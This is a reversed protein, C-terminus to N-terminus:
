RLKSLFMEFDLDLLDAEDDCMEGEEKMKESASTSKVFSTTKTSEKKGFSASRPAM